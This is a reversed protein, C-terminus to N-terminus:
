KLAQEFAKVGSAQKFVYGMKALVEELTKIGVILDNERIFGMHAIRFIKGKLQSQGGAMVVGYEDRMTKVLKEGDVGAPVKVATVADSAAMPAFLELGLAAVATRTAAALKKNRSFITELGEKRMNKLVENLAIILGIAPTFATDTKDLAKKALRLDFYYRPSRCAEIFAQAKPSVSIFGLGPPLMLGKQSGSVVMDLSWEDTKLDLSGLSSIADVVLIANTDKIVEGLAKIDSSAGTSTECHTVFVAKINPDNELKKKIRNPDVAKGWEVGIVDIQAHVMSALEVWREGFKGSEVVIVKDNANMTNVVAAEMAGTGSSALLFVDNTTQFIYKLGEFVEKLIRQFQPTRHHIIPQALAECVYPPLPTPGPTLLYNKNM